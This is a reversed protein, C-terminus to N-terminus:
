DRALVAALVSRLETAPDTALAAARWAVHADPRVLVCGDEGVERARAWDDYLDIHERGPGIVHAAVEIGLDEAVKTAATAWEEGAIGTLLCFRGKGALDHTSVRRGDRGLWAHPLRAGPWTTPHYYLESDRTYEPETTGDSAVAASAYRQGLEV